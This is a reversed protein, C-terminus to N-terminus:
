PWVSLPPPSSSCFFEQSRSINFLLSFKWKPYYLFMAKPIYFLLITDMGPLKSLVELLHCNLYHRFHPCSSWLSFCPSHFPNPLVLLVNFSYSVLPCNFLPLLGWWLHLPSSSTRVCILDLPPHLTKRIRRARIPLLKRGKRITVLVTRLHM